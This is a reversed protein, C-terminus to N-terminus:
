TSGRSFLTQYCQEKRARFKLEGILNCCQGDSVWLNHTPTYIYKKEIARSGQKGFENAYEYDEEM